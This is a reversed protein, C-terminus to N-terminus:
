AGVVEGGATTALAALEALSEEATWGEDDGTDVAVLFVKEVPAELEILNRATM